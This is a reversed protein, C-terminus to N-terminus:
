ISKTISLCSIDQLSSLILIKIVYNLKLINLNLKMTQYNVVWLIVFTLIIGIDESYFHNPYRTSEKWIGKFNIYIRELRTM